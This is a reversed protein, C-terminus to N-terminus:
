GTETRDLRYGALIYGVCTGAVTCTIVFLGVRGLWERNYCADFASAFKGM